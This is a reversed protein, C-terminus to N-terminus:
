YGGFTLNAAPHAKMRGDHIQVYRGAGEPTDLRDLPTTLIYENGADYIVLDRM